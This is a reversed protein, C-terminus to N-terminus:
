VCGCRDTPLICQISAELLSYRSLNSKFLASSRTIISTHHSDRLTLYRPFYVRGDHTGVFLFHNVLSASTNKGRQLSTEPADNGFNQIRRVPGHTKRLHDIYRKTNPRKTKERKVLGCLFFFIIVFHTHQAM